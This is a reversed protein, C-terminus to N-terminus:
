PQDRCRRSCSPRFHDPNRRRGHPSPQCSCRRPLLVTTQSAGSQTGSTINCGSVTPPLASRPRLGAMRLVPSTWGPLLPRARMAPQDPALSTDPKFPSCHQHGDHWEDALDSPYRKPEPLRHRGQRHRWRRRRRCRALPAPDPLVATSTVTTGNMLWIGPTGNLNQFLLDSDGNGALAALVTPVTPTPTPEVTYTLSSSATVGDADKVSATITHQGTSLTPDFTWVGSANTTTTGLSTGNETITV